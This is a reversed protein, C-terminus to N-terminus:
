TAGEEENQERHTGAGTSTHSVTRHTHTGVRGVREVYECMWLVM